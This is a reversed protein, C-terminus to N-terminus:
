RAGRPTRSLTTRALILLVANDRVGPPGLFGGLSHPVWPERAAICAFGIVRYAVWALRRRLGQVM